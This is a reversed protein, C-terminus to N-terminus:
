PFHVRSASTKAVHLSGLRPSISRTAGCRNSIPCSSHVDESHNPMREEFCSVATRIGGHRGYQHPLGYKALHSHPDSLHFLRVRVATRVGICLGAAGFYAHLPIHSCTYLYDAHHLLKLPM